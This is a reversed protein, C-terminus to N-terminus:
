CLAERLRQKMHECDTGDGFGRRWDGRRRERSNRHNFDDAVAVVSTAAISAALFLNLARKM